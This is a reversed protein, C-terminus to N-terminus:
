GKRLYVELEETLAKLKDTYPQTDNKDGQELCKFCFDFAIMALYREKPQNPFASRYMNLNENVLRVAERTLEEEKGGLKIRFPYDLDAITLTIRKEIDDM